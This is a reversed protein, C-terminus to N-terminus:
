RDHRQEKSGEQDYKESAPIFDCATNDGHRSRCNRQDKHDAQDLRDHDVSLNDAVPHAVPLRDASPGDADAIFDIRQGQEETQDHRERNEQGAEIGQLVHAPVVRKFFIVDQEQHKGSCDEAEHQRAVEEIHEDHDLDQGKRRNGERREAVILVARQFRGELVQDDARDTRRKGQRADDKEIFLEM